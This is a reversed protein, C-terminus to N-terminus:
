IKWTFLFGVRPNLNWINLTYIGSNKLTNKYQSTIACIKWTILCNRKEVRIGKCDHDLAGEPLKECISRWFAGVGLFFKMETSGGFAYNFIECVKGM